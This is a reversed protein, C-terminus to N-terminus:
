VAQIAATMADLVEQATGEGKVMALMSTYIAEVVQPHLYDILYLSEATAQGLQEITIKMVPNTIADWTEPLPPIAFGAKATKRLVDPSMAFAFFDLTEELHKNAKPVAWVISYGASWPSKPNDVFMVPKKFLDLRIKNADEVSRSLGPYWGTHLDIIAIEGQAFGSLLTDADVGLADQSIIGKKFMDGAIEVAQLLGPINRYDKKKSGEIIPTIGCTQAQIPSLLMSTWFGVKAGGFMYPYRVKGELARCVAYFDEQTTPEEVGAEEFVQANYWWQHVFLNWGSMGYLKGDEATCWAKAGPHIKEMFGYQRYWDDLELVVGDAVQLNWTTHTTGYLEPPDGSAFATALKEAYSTLGHGMEIKIGPHADEYEKATSGCIICRDKPSLYSWWRITIEEKPVPVTREIVRTVEKEVVKPTGKVIVTEKVVQVVTEKVVKEVVKPSCAALTGGLTTLAIGRLVERRSITKASM